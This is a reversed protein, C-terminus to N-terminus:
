HLYICQCQCKKSKIGNYFLRFAEAYENVYANLDQINIYNWEVRATVENGIVWNDVKGHGQNSYRETLFSATAAIYEVGEPEATNFAYYPCPSGDRALPHIMQPFRGDNNNLLAATIAIGRDSITKFINDYEAM